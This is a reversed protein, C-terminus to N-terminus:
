FRGEHRVRERDTLKRAKGKGLYAILRPKGSDCVVYKYAHGFIDVQGEIREGKRLKNYM